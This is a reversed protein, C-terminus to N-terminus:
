VVRWESEEHPREQHTNSLGTMMGSQVPHVEFRWGIQAGYENIATLLGLCSTTSESSKASEAQQRALM